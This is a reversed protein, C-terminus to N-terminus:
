PAGAIDVIREVLRGTQQGIKRVLTEEGIRRPDLGM